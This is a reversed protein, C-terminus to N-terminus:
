RNTILHRLFEHAPEAQRKEAAIRRLEVVVEEVTEDLTSTGATVGVHYSAQFWRRDLESAKSVRHAKCGLEKAKGVLQRTNNSNPGGVVIILDCDRCLSTLANQRQKTPHCVTDIFRVQSSPHRLRIENVLGLVLDLPQTTQAVVGFGNQAPLTDIDEPRLVVNADPYDGRLGRVEIHDAQGIIVPHHGDRVLLDLADHAKRVLPCTTDIVEHGQDQWRDRASRSSGHASIIVSSTMASDLDELRGRHIDMQDLHRDVEPNHVLQGLLTVSRSKATDHTLRLADRVGFCMGYHRALHIQM